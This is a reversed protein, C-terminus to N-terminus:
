NSGFLYKTWSMYIYYGQETRQIEINEPVIKRLREPTIKNRKLYDNPIYYVKDVVNKKNEKKSEM